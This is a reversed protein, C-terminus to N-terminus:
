SGVKTTQVTCNTHFSAQKEQEFMLVVVRYGLSVTQAGETARIPGPEAQWSMGLKIIRGDDWVSQSGKRVYERSKLSGSLSHRTTAVFQDSVQQGVMGGM